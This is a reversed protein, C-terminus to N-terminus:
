QVDCDGNRGMQGEPNLRGYRILNPSKIGGPESNKASYTVAQNAM